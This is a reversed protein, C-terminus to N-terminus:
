EEQDWAVTGGNTRMWQYAPWCAIDEPPEPPTRDKTLTLLWRRAPPWRRGAERLARIERAATDPDTAEACVQILHEAGDPTRALFDVEHGEPTRVYTAECRRRELEILVCDRTRPGCAGARHSRSGPRWRRQWRREFPAPLRLCCM